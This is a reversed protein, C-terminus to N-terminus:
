IQRERAGMPQPWREGRSNERGREKAQHVKVERARRVLQVWSSRIFQGWAEQGGGRAAWALDAGHQLVAVWPAAKQAQSGPGGCACREGALFHSTLVRGAVRGPLGGAAAATQRGGTKGPLQNGPQGGGPEASVGMRVSFPARTGCCTELRSTRGAKGLM